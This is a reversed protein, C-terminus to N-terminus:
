PKVYIKELRELTELCERSNHAKGPGFPMFEMGIVRLTSGEWMGQWRVTAYLELPMEDDTMLRVLVKWGKGMRQECVFALGGKSLNMVQSPKSFKKYFIGALGRRKFRVESGPVVFRRCSRKERFRSM